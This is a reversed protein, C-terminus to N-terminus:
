EALDDPPDIEELLDSVDRNLVIWDMSPKGPSANSKKQLNTTEMYFYFM